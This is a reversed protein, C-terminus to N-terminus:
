VLSVKGSPLDYVAGVVKVAGRAVAEPIVPGAAGIRGVNYRVNARVADDLPPLETPSGIAPEIASVLHPLQGPLEIRNKLVQLTADVAGCKGHGLVVILPIGLYKVGYELSGQGDENLFNGAVRVVFLDGIGQDFALEPPVRSDACGLIAAFPHQGGANAARLTGFDKNAAVNAVFRQNGAMLRALAEDASMQPAQPEGAPLASPWGGLGVAAAAFGAMVGRRSLGRRAMPTAACQCSDQM